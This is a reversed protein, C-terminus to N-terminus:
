AGSTNHSVVSSIQVEASYAVGREGPTLVGGCRGCVLQRGRQRVAGTHQAHVTAGRVTAAREGCMLCNLEYWTWPRSSCHLLRQACDVLEQLAARDAASTPSGLNELESLLMRYSKVPKKTSQPRARTRAEEVWTRVTATPVRECHELIRSLLDGRKREPARLLEAAQGFGVQGAELAPFIVPDRSIALQRSLWSPDVNLQLATRRVGAARTLEALQDLAALKETRSLSVRHLNEILALQLAEVHTAEREIAWITRIGARAHARWRREGCILIFHGPEVDQRVVIPQLQGSTRISAALEELARENFERRPGHPNPSIRDIPLLRYDRSREVPADGNTLQPAGWTAVVPEPPAPALQVVM